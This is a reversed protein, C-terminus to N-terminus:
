RPCGVSGPGDLPHQSRRIGLQRRRRDNGVFVAETDPRRDLLQYLGKDGSAAEWSGYTILSRDADPGSEILGAEAMADQWGRARERAEWWDMPGTIHGIKHYGQEILHRTALRGGLHNDVCVVSLRTGEEPTNTLFIRDGWVVPSSWAKGKIARKWVVNESESWKTPLQADEVIGQDSPGRYSTWNDAALLAMFPVMAVTVVVPLIRHTNM